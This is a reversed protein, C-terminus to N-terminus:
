PASPEPKKEPEAVTPWPGKYTKKLKEIVQDLETQKPAGELREKEKRANKLMELMESKKTGKKKTKTILNGVVQM